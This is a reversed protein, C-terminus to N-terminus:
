GGSAQAEWFFFLFIDLLLSRKLGVPSFAFINLAYFSLSKFVRQAGPRVCLLRIAPAGLRCSGCFSVRSPQGFAGYCMPPSLSVVLSVVMTLIVFSVVQSFPSRGKGKPRSCHDIESQVRSPSGTFTRETGELGHHARHEQKLNDPSQMPCEPKDQLKKTDLLSGLILTGKKRYDMKLCPSGEGWFTPSFPRRAPPGLKM